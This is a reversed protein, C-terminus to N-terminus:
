SIADDVRMVCQGGYYHSYSSWAWDGAEAVLGRKVPNAHMYELKVLVAREDDMPVCRFREKWVKGTAQGNARNCMVRLWEIAQRDGCKTRLQIAMRIERSAEALSYQMFKRVGEGSGRVLLHVHEPMVVFGEIKIDWRVRHEGWVDIMKRRVNDDGLVPLFGVISATCFHSRNDLYINRFRRNSM